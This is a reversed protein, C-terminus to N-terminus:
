PQPPNRWAYLRDMVADFWDTKVSARQEPTLMYDNFSHGCYRCVKAASQVIEACQPCKKALGASLKGEPTELHNLPRPLCAIVILAFFGFIAGLCFWRVANRGKGAAIAACAISCGILIWLLAM